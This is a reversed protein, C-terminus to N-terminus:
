SSQSGNYNSDGSYTARFYYQGAQLPVYEISTVMGNVLNEVDFTVLPGGDFKVRFTIAGTPSIQSEDLCGFIM